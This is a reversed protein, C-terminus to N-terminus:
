YPMIRQHEMNRINEENCVHHQMRDMELIEILSSTNYTLLIHLTSKHLDRM